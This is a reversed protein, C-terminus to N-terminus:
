FARMSWPLANAMLPMVKNKLHEKNAQTFYERKM